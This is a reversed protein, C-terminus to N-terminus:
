TRCAHCARRGPPPRPWEPATLSSAPEAVSVGRSTGYHGLLRCEGARGRARGGGRGYAWVGKPLPRWRALRELLAALSVRAAGGVAGVGRSSPAAAAPPFTAAAARAERPRRQRARPARAARPRKSTWSPKTSMYVYMCLYAWVYICVYICVRMCIHMCTYMCVYMICAYKCVYMCVYIYM